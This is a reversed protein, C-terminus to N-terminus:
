ARSYYIQSFFPEPMGCQRDLETLAYYLFFRVQKIGTVLSMDMDVSAM